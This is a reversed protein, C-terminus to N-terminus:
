LHTNRNGGNRKYHIKHCPSCRTHHAQECIAKCEICQKLGETVKAVIGGPTPRLIDAAEKTLELLSRMEESQIQAYEQDDAMLKIAGSAWDQVDPDVAPKRDQATPLWEHVRDDLFEM